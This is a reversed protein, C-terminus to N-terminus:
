QKGGHGSSPPCSGTGSVQVPSNDVCVGLHQCAWSSAKTPAKVSVKPGQQPTCNSAAPAPTPAPNQLQANEKRLREIEHQKLLRQREEELRQLEADEPSLPKVPAAPAIVAKPAPPMPPAPNLLATQQDKLADIQKQLALVKIRSQAAAIEGDPTPPATANSAKELASKQAELANIQKQLQLVKVKTQLEAMESNTDPSPTAQGQGFASLSALFVLAVLKYTASTTTLRTM